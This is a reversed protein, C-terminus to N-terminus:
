KKLRFVDDLDSECQFIINRLAPKLRSCSFTCSPNGFPSKITLIHTDKWKTISFASVHVVRPLYANLHRLSPTLQAAENILPPIPSQINRPTTAASADRLGCRPKRRRRGTKEFLLQDLSRELPLYVLSWFSLPFACRGNVHHSGPTYPARHMSSHSSLKPTLAVNKGNRPYV